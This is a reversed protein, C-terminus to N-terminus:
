KIYTLKYVAKQDGLILQAFYKGASLGKCNLLVYKGSNKYLQDTLNKVLRGNIDYIGLFVKSTLNYLKASTVNEFEIKTSPNFPNPSASIKVKKGNDFSAFFKELKSGTLITDMFGANTDIVPTWGWNGAKTPDFEYAGIDWQGSVRFTGNIDYASTDAISSIDIGADVLESSASSPYFNNATNDEFTGLGDQSMSFGDEAYSLDTATGYLINNSFKDSSEGTIGQHYYVLEGDFDEAYVANNYFFCSDCMDMHSVFIQGNIITNNFVHMQRVDRVKGSNHALHMAYSSTSHCIIINNFFEVEGDTQACADLTTNMIFNNYVFHNNEVPRDFTGNVLIGPYYTNHIVNNKVICSHCGEKLQIGDGQNGSSSITATHHIWNNIFECYSPNKDEGYNDGVYFGEGHVGTHHIHNHVFKLYHQEWELETSAGVHPAFRMGNNGVHHINMNKIVIHDNPGFYSEIGTRGKTLELGDVILYSCAGITIINQGQGGDDIHVFVDFLSDYEIIPIEGEENKIVIPNAETGQLNYLVWSTDISYTGGALYLTDGSTLQDSSTQLDDSPSIHLTAASLYFFLGLCFIIIKLM